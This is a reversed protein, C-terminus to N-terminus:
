RSRRRKTVRQVRVVTVKREPDPPEAVLERAFGDVWAFTRVRVVSGPPTLYVPMNGEDGIMTAMQYRTAIALISPRKPVERGVLPLGTATAWSWWTPTM